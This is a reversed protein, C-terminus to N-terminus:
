KLWFRGFIALCSCAKETIKHNRIQNAKFLWKLSIIRSTRFSLFISIWAPIGWLASSILSSNIRSIGGGSFCSYTWSMRSLTSQQLLRTSSKMKRTICSSLVTLVCVGISGNKILETSILFFLSSICSFAISFAAAEPFLTTSCREVHFFFKHFVM